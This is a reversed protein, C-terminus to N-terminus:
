ETPPKLVLLVPRLEDAGLKAVAQGLILAERGMRKSLRSALSQAHAFDRARRSREIAVRDGKEDGVLAVHFGGRPSIRRAKAPLGRALPLFSRWGRSVGVWPAGAKIRKFMEVQALRKKAEVETDYCGFSKKGDEGYVCWQGDKERIM